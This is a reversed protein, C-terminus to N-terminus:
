RMRLETPGAQASTLMPHHTHDDRASICKLKCASWGVQWIPVRGIRVTLLSGSEGPLVPSLSLAVPAFPFCDTCSHNGLGLFTETELRMKSKLGGFQVSAFHVNLIFFM